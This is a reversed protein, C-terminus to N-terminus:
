VLLGRSTSGVQASIGPRREFHQIGPGMVNSCIDGAILVGEHRLLLALHGACHGPSHIVEVDPAMPLRGGDELIQDVSFPKYTTGGPNSSFLTSSRQFSDPRLLLEPINLM